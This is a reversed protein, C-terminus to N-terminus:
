FYGYNPKTSLLGFDILNLVALHYISENTHIRMPMHMLIRGWVLNCKVCSMDKLFNEKYKLTSLNILKHQMILLGQLSM